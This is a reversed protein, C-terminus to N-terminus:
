IKFFVCIFGECEVRWFGDDSVVIFIEEGKRPNNSSIRVIEKM